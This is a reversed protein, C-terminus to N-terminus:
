DNYRDEEVYADIDPYQSLEEVCARAAELDDTAGDIDRFGLGMGSGDRSIGYGKFLNKIWEDVGYVEEFYLDAPYSVYIRYM